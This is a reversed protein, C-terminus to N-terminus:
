DRSESLLWFFRRYRDYYMDRSCPIELKSKLYTFSLGETVAKLIYIYLDRDAEMAAKEILGIKESYYAKKMAYKATLDSPINSSPMRDFVSSTRSLEDIAAYTKKWSLYQLCFHKLEYYRHRDIWYKNKESLEPRVVTAM